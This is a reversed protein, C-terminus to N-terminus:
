FGTLTVNGNNSLIDITGEGTGLTGTVVNNTIQENTLTLNTLTVTGIDTRADLEANTTSPISLTINGNVTSLDIFEDEEITVMASLHGNVVVVETSGEIDTLTVLGNTVLAFVGNDLDEITVEGNINAVQGFLREPVELVWNVTYERTGGAPHLAQIQLENGVENIELTIIELGAAADAESSAGVRKEGRLVFGEGGSNSTVLVRGNTNEIAFSSLGTADRDFRFNEFVEASCCQSSTISACAAITLATLIAAFVSLHTAIRASYRHNM